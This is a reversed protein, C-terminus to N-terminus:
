LGENEREYTHTWQKDSKKLDNYLKNRDVPTQSRKFWPHHHHLWIRDYGIVGPDWRWEPGVMCVEHVPRQWRHTGDNRILRVQWDPLVDANEKKREHPADYWNHRPFAVAPWGKFLAAGHCINTLQELDTRDIREDADIMLVYGCHNLHAAITRVQGFNFHEGDMPVNIRYIQLKPWLLPEQERLYDWTQDDSGTDLVVIESFFPITEELLSRMAEYENRVFMSLGLRRDIIRM